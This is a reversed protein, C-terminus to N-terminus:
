RETETETQPEAALAAAEADAAKREGLERELEDIVLSAEALTLDASSPVTRGVVHTAYDARDARETIGYDRYLAHLKNKQPRTIAPPPAPAADTTEGPLPPLAPPPNADMGGSPAPLVVAAAPTRRRRTVRRNGTAPKADVGAALELEDADQMEEYAALGGTVDAFIARVVDASSRASLMQRPYNRYTQKGALNARSADDMTWSVTAVHDSDRRRGCWTVRTVTLEDPWMEHGAALVLARQAEAYLTPTGDIIRISRLSQMPGLGIEDGYLICATIAPVNNRMSSTVFDTGAVAKALEAVPAMLEVWRGLAPRELMAERGRGYEGAAGRPELRM